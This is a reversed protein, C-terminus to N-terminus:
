SGFQNLHHDLHVYILRGWQKKTLKGFVAHPQVAHDAIAIFDELKRLLYDRDADFNVPKSGLRHPDLEALTKVKGKPAKMGMLILKKLLTRTLFKSKNEAHIEGTALKVQDACHCLMEGVNMKGWIPLDDRKLDAIRVKIVDFDKKILINGM